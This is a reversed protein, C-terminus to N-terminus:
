KKKFRIRNKGLTIAFGEEGQKSESSINPPEHTPRTFQYIFIAFGLPISALSIVVLNAYYIGIFLIILVWIVNGIFFIRAIKRKRKESSLLFALFAALIWQKTMLSMSCRDQKSRLTRTTAAFALASM